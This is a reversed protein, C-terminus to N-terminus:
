LKPPPAASFAPLAECRAAHAALSPFHKAVELTPRVLEIFTFAIAV